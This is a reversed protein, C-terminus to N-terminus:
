RPGPFPEGERWPLTSHLITWGVPGRTGFSIEFDLASRLSADGTTLETLHGAQPLTMLRPRVHIFYRGTALLIRIPRSVAEDEGDRFEVEVHVEGTSGPLREWIEFYDQQVGYELMREESEFEIRGVDDFGSPPQFDVRRLWRCIDEEVRTVGAFGQQESLGSLEERTCEHLSRRDACPPRSVPIRIDGHWVPTQLWFVTSTTDEFEPTRLLARKWVGLYADPVSALTPTV